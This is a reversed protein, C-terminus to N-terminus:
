RVRTGKVLKNMTKFNIHSLSRHWLNSEDLTAKALLYTLDGSPVVNKLDVNYMNNERPARLLVHIEDPLKFDYSLVVCKTDRSKHNDTRLKEAKKPHEVLKVFKKPTKVHETTQVLSPVKKTPMPEGESKDESDVWDKIIPASPRNALSMDKTPKTTSPEVTVMNPVIESDNVPSTPVSDDSESGSLEDCDFVHNSKKLLKFKELTQKLEDREQKAKEFKKRLEVLANDRLM